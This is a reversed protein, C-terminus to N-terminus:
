RAKRELACAYLPEPTRFIEARDLWEPEGHNLASAPLFFRRRRWDSSAPECRSFAPLYNFHHGTRCADRADGRRCKHQTSALAARVVLYRGAEAQTRSPSSPKCGSWESGCEAEPLPVSESMGVDAFGDLGDFNWRVRGLFFPPDDPM